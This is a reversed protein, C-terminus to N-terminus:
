TAMKRNVIPFQFTTRLRYSSSRTSISFGVAAASSLFSLKSYVDDWGRVWGNVRDSRAVRTEVVYKRLIEVM